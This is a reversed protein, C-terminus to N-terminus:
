APPALLTLVVNAAVAAVAAVLALWLALKVRRVAANLKELPAATEGLYMVHAIRSAISGHRWNRQHMAIGNLRAVRQLAGAFVMAGRMTIRGEADAPPLQGTDDAPPPDAESRDALYAATADSQWEFRRSVWGFGLGWAAALLLLFVGEAMAYDWGLAAALPDAVAACLGASAVAFVVSHLIHHYRIHGVEHAFIARVAPGDLNALLADSLLIYRIRGALGMVAANAVVGGSHWILIDRYRLKMRRCIGELQERLDGAPLPSTRWIRVIIAPAVLFVAGASALSGIMLTADAAAAPLHPYLYLWLADHAFVIMSVPVIVLLLHHRSNFLLYEGLSWVAAPPTGAEAAVTRLRMARYVPYDLAWMMLLAATFPLWAALAAALPVDALRLVDVVLAGYGLLVVGASGVILLAHNMAAVTRHRRAAAAAVAPDATGLARLTLLTNAAAIAAVAALYVAAAPGAQWPQPEWPLGLPETLVALTVSLGLLVVILM